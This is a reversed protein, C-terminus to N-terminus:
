VTPRMSPTMTTDWIDFCPPARRQRFDACFASLAPSLLGLADLPLLQELFYPRLTPRLRGAYRDLLRAAARPKGNEVLLRSIGFVTNKRLRGLVDDDIETLISDIRDTAGTRVALTLLQNLIRSRLYESKTRAYLEAIEDLPVSQDGLYVAVALRYYERVEDFGLDADDILANLVDLQRNTLLRGMFVYLAHEPLLDVHKLAHALFVQQEPTWNAPPNALTAEIRQNTAAHVSDEGQKVSAEILPRLLSRKLGGWVASKAKGLLPRLRARTDYEKTSSTEM